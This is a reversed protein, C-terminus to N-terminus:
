VNRAVLAGVLVSNRVVSDLVTNRTTERFACCHRSSRVLWIYKMPNIYRLQLEIKCVEDRSIREQALAYETLIGMM